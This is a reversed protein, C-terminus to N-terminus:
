CVSSNLTIFTATKKRVARVMAEIGQARSITLHQILELEIFFPRVDFKMIEIPTLGHYLVFIIAILGKVIAADSDGNLEIIGGDDISILIWVQSQCGYILNDSIKMSNPFDPLLGGLEILYLYKEKWDICRSFNDLLKKIDPLVSM